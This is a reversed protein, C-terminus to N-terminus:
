WFCFVACVAGSTEVTRDREVRDLFQIRRHLRFHHSRNSPLLPPAQPAPRPLRHPPSSTLPTLPAKLPTPSPYSLLHLHTSHPSLPSPFRPSLSKESVNQPHSHFILVCIHICSTNAFTVKEVWGAMIELSSLLVLFHCYYLWFFRSLTTFFLSVVRGRRMLGCLVLVSRSM